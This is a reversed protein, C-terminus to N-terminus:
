KQVTPVSCIIHLANKGFNFYKLLRFIIVSFYILYARIVLIVQKKISCLICRCGPWLYTYM